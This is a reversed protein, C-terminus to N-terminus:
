SLNFFSFYKVFLYVFFLRSFVACACIESCDWISCHFFDPRPPSTPPPRQLFFQIYINLALSLFSVINSCHYQFDIQLWFINVILNNDIASLKSDGFLLLEIKLHSPLNKHYSNISCIDIYLSRRANEFNICRLFFINMTKLRWVANVYPTWLIYFAMDLSTNM